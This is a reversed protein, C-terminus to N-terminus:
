SLPMPCTLLRELSQNGFRYSAKRNLNIDFHAYAQTFLLQFGNFHTLSMGGRCGWPCSSGLYGSKWHLLRLMALQGHSVSCLFTIYDSWPERSGSSNQAMECSRTLVCRGLLTSRVLGRQYSFTTM